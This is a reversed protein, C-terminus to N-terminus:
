LLFDHAPEVAVRRMGLIRRGCKGAATKRTRNKGRQPAVENLNFTNANDGLTAREECGQASM